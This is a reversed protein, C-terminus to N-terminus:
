ELVYVTCDRVGFQWCEAETNFYLDIINGKISGGIDEAVAVGYIYKGDNTHIYLRTGLPIFTPDVAIAGVRAPTGSYTYGVEGDCSYATAVCDLKKTYKLVAGECTIITNGDVTPIEGDPLSPVYGLDNEPETPKPETPKPETPKPETPKPETPVTETPVPETPMPLPNPHDVYSGIAIVETVPQRVVIESNIVRNVEVDDVYYVTANCLVQGSVGPILVKQEGADLSGDYCYSIDYAITTTYSQEVKVARSITIVMGNYTDTSDPVSIVDESSLILSMRNLLSAVTEGYSTANYTKGDYVVTISQLRQVTIESIGAGNQTIYTDDEGLELGAENLVEAPDTAYTTHLLVRGGDNILYTNKAFATQSFLLMICIMPLVSVAIRTLLAMKRRAFRNCELM